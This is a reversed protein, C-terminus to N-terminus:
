LVSEDTDKKTYPYINEVSGEGIITGGEILFFATGIHLKEYHVHPYMPLVLAQMPENFTGQDGDIFCVGLYEQEDDDKVVLHPRYIQSSFSPITKRKGSFLIISIEIAYGLM